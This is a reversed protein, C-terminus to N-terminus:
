FVNAELSDAIQEMKARHAPTANPGKELALYGMFLSVHASVGDLTLRARGPWHRAVMKEKTFPNTMEENEALELQPDNSIFQQWEDLTIPHLISRHPHDARSVIRGDRSVNALPNARETLKWHPGFFSDLKAHAHPVFGNPPDHEWIWVENSTPNNGVMCYSNGSGDGGIFLFRHDRLEPQAEYWDFDPRGRLLGLQQIVFLEANTVMVGGDDSVLHHDPDNPFQAMFDKFVAPLAVGLHSEIFNFDNTDM